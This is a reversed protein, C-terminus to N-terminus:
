KLLLPLYLRFPMSPPPTVGGVLNACQDEASGEVNNNGGTPPPVNEKCQLNGDITNGAIHVGGNNQFAQLDSGVINNTIVLAQANSELQISGNVAVSDITAAGSQIVQVSGGVTSNGTVNVRAANEAQVSGDIRVANAYLAANQEIKVTGEVRTGNLTCTQNPPVRVNDVTIAGLTASCTIEEAYARQHGVQLMSCVVAAILVLMKFRNSKMM